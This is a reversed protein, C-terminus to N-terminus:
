SFPRRQSKKLKTWVLVFICVEYMGVIDLHNIVFVVVTIIIMCYHDGIHHLHQRGLQGHGATAAVRIARPSRGPRGHDHVQVVDIVVGRPERAGLVVNLQGLIGRGADPHGGNLGHIRIGSLNAADPVRGHQAELVRRQYEVRIRADDHHGVVIM